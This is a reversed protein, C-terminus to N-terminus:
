LLTFLEWDLGMGPTSKELYVYRDNEVKVIKGMEGPKIGYLEMVSLKALDYNTPTFKVVDGIKFPCSQSNM